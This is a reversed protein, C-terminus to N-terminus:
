NQHEFQTRTASINNNSVIENASENEPPFLKQFLRQGAYVTGVGRSISGAIENPTDLLERNTLLYETAASAQFLCCRGGVQFLTNIAKFTLRFEHFILNQLQIWVSRAASQIRRTMRTRSPLTNVCVFLRRPVDVVVFAWHTDVGDKIADNIVFAFTHENPNRFHEM